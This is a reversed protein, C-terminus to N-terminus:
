AGSVVTWATELIWYTIAVFTVFMTAVAVFLVLVSGVLIGKLFKM